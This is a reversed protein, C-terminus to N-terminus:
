NALAQKLSEAIEAAYAKIGSEDTGEIMVRAKAETGSYRVVVRGERGLADEVKAIMKQVSPMEEFPRKKAVAFNLLVQPYRTM